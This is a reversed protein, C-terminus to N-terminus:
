GDKYIMDKTDDEESKLLEYDVIYLIIGMNIFYCALLKWALSHSYRTHTSHSEYQTLKKM